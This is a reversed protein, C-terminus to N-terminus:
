SANSFLNNIRREQRVFRNWSNRAEKSEHKFIYHQVTFKGDVNLDIEFKKHKEFEESPIDKVRKPKDGIVIDIFEDISIGDYKYRDIQNGNEIEVYKTM